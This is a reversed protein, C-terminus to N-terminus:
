KFEPTEPITKFKREDAKQNVNSFPVLCLRDYLDIYNKLNYIRLESSTIRHPTRMVNHILIVKEKDDNASQLDKVLKEM